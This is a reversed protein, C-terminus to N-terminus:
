ESAGSAPQSDLYERLRAFLHAIAKLDDEPYALDDESVPSPLPLPWSPDATAPDERWAPKILQDREPFVEHLLLSWWAFNSIARHQPQSSLWQWRRALCQATGTARTGQGSKPVPQMLAIATTM